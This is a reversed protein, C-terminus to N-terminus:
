SLDKIHSIVEGGNEFFLGSGGCAFDGGGFEASAYTEDVACEGGGGCDGCAGDNFEDAEREARTEEGHGFDMEFSSLVGGECDFDAIGEVIVAVEGSGGGACRGFGDDEVCVAEAVVDGGCLGFEDEGGACFGEGGSFLDGEVEEVDGISCGM